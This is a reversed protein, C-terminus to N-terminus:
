HTSLQVGILLRALWDPGSATPMAAAYALPTNLQWNLRLPLRAAAPAAAPNALWAALRPFALLPLAMSAALAGLLYARNWAFYTLAFIALCFSAEALYLLLNALMAM